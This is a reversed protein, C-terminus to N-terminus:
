DLGLSLFELSLEDLLNMAESDTRAALVLRWGDPREVFRIRGHEFSWTSWSPAPTEIFVEASITDFHALVSEIQSAPCSEEISRGMLKGDPQRLGCGLMGSPSARNMLWELAPSIM